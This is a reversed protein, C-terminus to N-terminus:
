LYYIIKFRSDPVTIKQNEPSCIYKEMFEKMFKESFINELQIKLSKRYEIISSTDLYERYIWPHTITYLEIMVSIYWDFNKPTPDLKRFDELMEKVCNSGKAKSQKYLEKFLRTAEYSFCNYIIRSKLRHTVGSNNIEFTLAEEVTNKSKLMAEYVDTELNFIMISIAQCLSSLLEMQDCSDM